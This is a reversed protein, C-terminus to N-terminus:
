DWVSKSTDPRHPFQRAIFNFIGIVQV